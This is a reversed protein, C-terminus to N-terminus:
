APAKGTKVAEQLPQDMLSDIILMIVHKKKTETEM